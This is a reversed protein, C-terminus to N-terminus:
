QVHSHNGTLTLHLYIFIFTLKHYWNLYQAKARLDFVEAHMSGLMSRLATEQTPDEMVQDKMISAIASRYTASYVTVALISIADRASGHWRIVNEKKEGGDKPIAGGM